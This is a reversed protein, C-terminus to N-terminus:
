SIWPASNTAPLADRLPLVEIVVALPVVTSAADDVTPGALRMVLRIGPGKGGPVRVVGSTDTCAVAPAAPVFMVMITLCSVVFALFRRPTAAATQLTGAVVIMVIGTTATLVLEDELLLEDDLLELEDELLEDLLEEDDLEVLELEEELVEDVDELEVDEDELELVEEDVDLEVEDVVLELVDLVVAEVVVDVTGSGVVLVVIPTCCIL